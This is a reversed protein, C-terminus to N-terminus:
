GVVRVRVVACLSLVRFCLSASFRFTKTKWHNPPENIADYVRPVLPSSNVRCRRSKESNGGGCLFLRSISLFKRRTSIIEDSRLPVNGEKKREDRSRNTESRQNIEQQILLFPGRLNKAKATM